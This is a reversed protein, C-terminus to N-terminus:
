ESINRLNNLNHKLIAPLHAAAHMPSHTPSPTEKDLGPTCLCAAQLPGPLLTRAVDGGAVGGVKCLWNCGCGVHVWVLACVPHGASLTCPRLLVRLLDIPWIAARQTMTTM